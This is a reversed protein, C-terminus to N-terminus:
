PIPRTKEMEMKELEDVDIPLIELICLPILRPRPRPILIGTSISGSTTFINELEQRSMKEYGDIDRLGAVNRLEETTWNSLTSM